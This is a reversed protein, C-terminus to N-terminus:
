TWHVCQNTEPGCLIVRKSARTFAVYFLRTISDRDRSWEAYGALSLDPFVVVTDCEGGKVSHITGLTIKPERKLEAGSSTRDVVRLAMRM